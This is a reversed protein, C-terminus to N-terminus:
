PTEVELRRLGPDAVHALRIRRTPPPAWDGAREPWEILLLAGTALTEWDLDAADDPRRLRYCDVHYVMGRPGEYRHVLDYTPSTALSRVGFGRVIAQTVTTKGAGLDGQLWVVQPPALTRGLEEGWAVLEAENLERRISM